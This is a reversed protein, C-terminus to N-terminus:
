IFLTLTGIIILYLSFVLLSNNKLFKMLFYISMLGFIFACFFGVVLPLFDTQIGSNGPLKIATLLGAGLIAPIGLLFSFRAAMVRNVGQFLGCIITSGSRSVGPILAIAQAIGILFSKKWTLEDTKNKSIKYVKEGLIYIFGIAIMCISVYMSNRFVSDIADEFFLGAIVAPITGVVIFILLKFYPDHKDLKGIVIKLFAKILEFVDKKFYVLIALLTAFHVMVDFTKLSSVDLGLYDEFLVLHGSSSIPLFEAVGQLIGLIISDIIEM